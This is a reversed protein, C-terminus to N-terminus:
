SAQPRAWFLDRRVHRLVKVGSFMVAGHISTGCPM